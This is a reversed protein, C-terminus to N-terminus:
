LIYMDHILRSFVLGFAITAIIISIQGSLFGDIIESKKRESLSGIYVSTALGTGATFEDLM